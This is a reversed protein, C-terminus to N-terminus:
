APRRAVYESLVGWYTFREVQEFGADRLAAMISSPPACADITDWYFRMLRGPGGGPMVLRAAWPVLTKMYVRLLGAGFRNQPRSIELLCLTGSPKLVRLFEGFAVKLDSLHRLAYGMSVFDFQCAAFPLREANAQVLPMSSTKRAERLMEISTDLAVVNREDGTLAVAARATLGTGAAIDLVQMGRELGRRGLAEGRYWEGSGFGAIREVHDYNGASRDFLERVFRQRGREDDYYGPLIPIPPLRSDRM